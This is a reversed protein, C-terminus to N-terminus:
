SGNNYISLKEKVQSAHVHVIRCFAKVTNTKCTLLETLMNMLINM